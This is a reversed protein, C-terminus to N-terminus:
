AEPTKKHNLIDRAILNHKDSIYVYDILSPVFHRTFARHRQMLSVNPDYGIQKLMADYDDIKKSELPQPSSTDIDSVMGFGYQALLRWDFRYDPDIKRAPAIDSHGLFFRIDHRSTIDKLLALLSQMQVDSFDHYGFQAGCNDLEIGISCDNLGNIGQWHSVGAHWARYHEDVLRTICGDNKDIVYHASVQANVDCLRNIADHSHQMDTYHLIVMDCVTDAPRHNFNPSPYDIINLM